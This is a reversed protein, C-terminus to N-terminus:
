SLDFDLAIHAQLRGGKRWLVTGNDSRACGGGCSVGKSARRRHIDVAWATGRTLKWVVEKVGKVGRRDREKGLVMPTM